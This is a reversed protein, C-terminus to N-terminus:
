TVSRANRYGFENSYLFVRLVMTRLEATLLVRSDLPRRDLVVM